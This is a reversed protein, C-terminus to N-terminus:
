RPTLSGAYAVSDSEIDHAAGNNDVIQEENRSYLWKLTLTTLGGCLEFSGPIWVPWLGEGLGYTVILVSGTIFLCSYGYSIDKASKTRWIKYIQPVLSAAIVSSGLLGLVNYVESGM